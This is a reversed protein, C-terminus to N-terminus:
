LESDPRQRPESMESQKRESSAFRKVPHSIASVDFNNLVKAQFFLFRQASGLLKARQMEREPRRTATAFERGSQKHALGPVDSM